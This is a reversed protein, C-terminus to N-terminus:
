VIVLIIPWVLFLWSSAMVIYRKTVPKPFKTISVVVLTVLGFAYVRYVLVVTIHTMLLKALNVRYRLVM